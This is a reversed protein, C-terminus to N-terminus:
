TEQFLKALYPDLQEEEEPYAEPLLPETEVATKPNSGLALTSSESTEPTETQQDPGLPEYFEDLEFEGDEFRGSPADVVPPVPNPETPAVNRLPTQEAAADIAVARAAEL